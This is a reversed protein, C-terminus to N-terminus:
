PRGGFAIIYGDPDEIAYFGEWPGRVTFGLKAYYSMSRALHDVLFRPAFSTLRPRTEVSPLGISGENRLSTLRRGYGHPVPPAVGRRAM